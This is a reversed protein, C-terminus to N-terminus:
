HKANNAVPKLALAGAVGFHPTFVDRIKGMDLTLCNEVDSASLDFSLIMGDFWAAQSDADLILAKDYLKAIIMESRRKHQPLNESFSVQLPTMM